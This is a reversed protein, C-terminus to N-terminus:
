GVVLLVQLVIFFNETGQFIVVVHRAAVAEAVAFVAIVEDVSLHLLIRLPNPFDFAPYGLPLLKKCFSAPIPLFKGKKSCKEHNEQRYRCFFADTGFFLVNKREMEFKHQLIAYTNVKKAAYNLCLFSSM